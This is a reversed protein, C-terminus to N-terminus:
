QRQRQLNQAFAANSISNDNTNKKSDQLEDFLVTMIFGVSPLLNQVVNFYKKPPPLIVKFVIFLGLLQPYQPISHHGICVMVFDFKEMNGNSTVEWSGDIRSLQFLRSSGKM